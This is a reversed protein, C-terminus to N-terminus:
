TFDFYRRGNYLFVYRKEVCEKANPLLPLITVQKRVFNFWGQATAGGLPLTREDFFYM